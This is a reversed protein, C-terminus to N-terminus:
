IFWFWSRCKDKPRGDSLKERAVNTGSGDLLYWDKIKFSSVYANVVYKVHCPSWSSNAEIYDHGSIIGGKRVKKSWEYIDEAIYRFLHNGDIYVFDLSEDEFDELAEMSTKRIITCNPYKDLVRKTHEYQFDLRAQGRPNNYDSYIRWPDISYIKLGAKCFVESFKGKEVGIEAGVKYGLDVFFQPLDERCTDPIKVRWEKIKIGEIIKM